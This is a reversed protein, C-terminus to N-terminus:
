ELIEILSESKVTIKYSQINAMGDVIYMHSMTM